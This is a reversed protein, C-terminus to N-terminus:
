SAAPTGALAQAVSAASPSVLSVDVFGRARAREAIRPHSAFARAARWDAGPALAHLHDIAESSSFMWAWRAPEALAAALLARSAEDLTPAARAYAQVFEVRAGAERLHEALWDRGGNGRVILAPRDRWPWGAIRQWLAESDFQAAEPPPAVIAAEPVGAARLAAVTGPGTAGARAAAPWPRPGASSAPAEHRLAAFFGAVANPSVFVLLPGAGDDGAAVAAARELRGFAAAVAAPEPAPLIDILPLARAEVGLEHLAAVWAEAQERPRVVILTPPLV